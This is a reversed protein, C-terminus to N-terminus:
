RSGHRTRYDRLTRGATGGAAPYGPGLVASGRGAGVDIRKALDLRTERARGRFLLHRLGGPPRLGRALRILLSKMVDQRSALVAIKRPM